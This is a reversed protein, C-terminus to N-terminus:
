QIVCTLRAFEYFPLDSPGMRAERIFSFGLWKLWKVARHHRSDVYNVM